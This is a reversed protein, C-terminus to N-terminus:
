DFSGTAYAGSYDPSNASGPSALTRTRCHEAVGTNNPVDVAAETYFHWQHPQTGSGGFMLEVREMSRSVKGDYGGAFPPLTRSGVPEILREDRDRITLRIPDGYPFALEPLLWDPEPFCGTSKAAIYVHEGTEIARDSQPIIFDIETTGSLELRWGTLKAPKAGENRLEVFVDSPDWNGDNDVSGSWMVETIKINGREGSTVDEDLGDRYGVQEDPYGPHGCAVLLGLLGAARV